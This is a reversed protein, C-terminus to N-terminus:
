LEERIADNALLRVTAVFDQYYYCQYAYPLQVYSVIRMDSAFSSFEYTQWLM